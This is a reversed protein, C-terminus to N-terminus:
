SSQARQVEREGVGKNKTKQKTKNKESVTNRQTVARTATRSNAKYVLSAEFEGAETEWTSPNFTHAVM